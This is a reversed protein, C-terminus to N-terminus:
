SRCVTSSQVNRIHVKRSAQDRKQVLMKEASVMCLRRRDENENGEFGIRETGASNQAGEELSVIEWM